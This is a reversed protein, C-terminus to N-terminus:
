PRGPFPAASAGTEALQLWQAVRVIQEPTWSAISAATVNVGLVVLRDRLDYVTDPYQRVDGVCLGELHLQAAPTLPRLETQYYFRVHGRRDRGRIFEGALGELEVQLGVLDDDPHQVVEALLADPPPWPEGQLDVDLQEM